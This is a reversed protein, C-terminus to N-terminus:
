LFYQSPGLVVNLFDIGLKNDPQPKYISFLFFVCTGVFNCITYETVFFVSKLLMNKVQVIHCSKM